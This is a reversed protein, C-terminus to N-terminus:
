SAPQYKIMMATAGQVEGAAFLLDTACFYLSNLGSNTPTSAQEWTFGGDFTVHVSGLPAATNHLIAGIYENVFEIDDLSGTGTGAFTTREAWTTGGDTSYFLEGDDTTAFVRLADHAWLGLIDGGEGTATVASWTVGGDITKVVVDSQAGAYGNLEDSFYIAGYEGATLVGSEQVAWAAGGDESKYIYGDQTGMWINYFDLVFLSNDNPCYQGNVSGVDVLTWTLGDDESYAIEAPEGADTTGRAILKRTVNAGTTSAFCVIAAIDEAAAFPHALTAPWGDAGGNDTDLVDAAEAPSGAPADTVAMGDQCVDQQDGCPGQCREANCFSLDNIPTTETVTQRLGILRFYDNVPPLVQATFTQMAVADESRKVWGQRGRASLQGVEIIALREYNTILDANGGCRLLLYLTFPCRVKELRDATKGVFTGLGIDIVGPSNATYGLTDWGGKGDFCQILENISGLDEEFDDVDHCALYYSRTNPGDPQIYLAGSNKATYTKNSAM